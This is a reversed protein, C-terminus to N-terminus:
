PMHTSYWSWRVCQPIFAALNVLDAPTMVCAVFDDVWSQIMATHAVLSFFCAQMASRCACSPPAHTNAAVLENSAAIVARLQSACM